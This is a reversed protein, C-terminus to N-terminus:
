PFMTKSGAMTVTTCSNKRELFLNNTLMKLADLSNKLKGHVHSSTVTSNNTNSWSCLERSWKTFWIDFLYWSIFAMDENTDDVSKTTRTTSQILKIFKSSWESCTWCSISGVFRCSSFRCNFLFKTKHFQFLSWFWTRVQIKILYKHRNFNFLVKPIQIVIM